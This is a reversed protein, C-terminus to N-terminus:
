QLAAINLEGTKRLLWERYVFHSSNTIKEKLSDAKFEDPVLKLKIYMGAFTLFKRFTKKREEPIQKDNKLSRKSTDILNLANEFAGTECYIVLMLNKVQQKRASYEINIKSLYELAKGYNKKGYSLVGMAFNLAFVRHHSELRDKYKEIFKEAWGSQKLSVSNRVSSLFYNMDYYEHKNHIDNEMIEKDLEFREERFEEFGSNTKRICYNVLTIYLNRITEESLRSILKNKVEKLKYYYDDNKETNLMIEYYHMAIYDDNKIITDNAKIYSLM